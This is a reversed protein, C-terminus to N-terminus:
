IKWLECNRQYLIKKSEIIQREEPSLVSNLYPLLLSADISEEIDAEFEELIKRGTPSPQKDEKDNDPFDHSLTDNRCFPLVQLAFSQLHLSSNQNHIFNADLFLIRFSHIDEVM